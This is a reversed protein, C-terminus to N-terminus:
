KKLFLLLLLGGGMVYLMTNDKAPLPQGTSPNVASGGQAFMGAGSIISSTPNIAAGVVGAVSGMIQPNNLATGAYNTATNAISLVGNVAAGAIGVAGNVITGPISAISGIAGTLTHGLDSFFGM